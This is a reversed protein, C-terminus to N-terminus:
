RSRAARDDGVDGDFPIEDVGAGAFGEGFQGPKDGVHHSRAVSMAEHACSQGEGAQDIGSGTTKAERRVEAPGIHVDPGGKRWNKM